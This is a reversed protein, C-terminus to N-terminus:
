FRQTLKIWFYRGITDFTEVDTNANLVNNQFMLPPQKDFMNDVGILVSSGWDEKAYGLALNHYITSGYAIPTVAAGGDADPLTFGHIYRANWLASFGNYDWAVAGQARWRAFNGFQRNFKGANDIKLPSSADPQREDKAIYTSDLSFRFRGFPTSDLRYKAGVDVGSTDVKGLNATIQQIVFVEGDSANRVILNCFQPDGSSLCQAAITDPELTEITDDLKYRWFDVAASFGKFWSPDYVFGYTLVRGEEPDLRPNGQLLGTIQSNPPNFSGNRPVNQCVLALNPQADVDAQTLGVCPDDFQASNNVKPSFLDGITPARFVEAFSARILLDDIPRYEMRITGNHAAGFNSYDSYRAGINFALSQAGPKDALVPLYVETYYEKVNYEGNTANTCTEQQLLCSLFDPALARAVFDVDSELELERYEFGAAMQVAGAPLNFLTGSTNVTAIKQTFFSQTGYGAAVPALAEAQGPATLNFINIPTCGEIVTAGTLPDAPDPGATGCVPSQIGPAPDTDFSPGLADVLPPAFLYGKADFYTAERGFSGGADWKWTTDGITGTLGLNVQDVMNKVESERNGLAELRFVANPFGTGLGGFDIGFPNFVSDASIVVNDNRSDFPLPAITFGSRTQNHVVEAYAEISDTIKYTGIAFVSAREQPTLVLNFPQYNYFDSNNGSTIFCRFDNQSGGAAGNQRIVSINVDALTAGDAVLAAEQEPTLCDYQRAGPSLGADTTTEFQSGPLTIRGNPARSSGGQFVFGSYLYTAFEAFKRAGASIGKQENYNMGLMISGKADSAGWSLNLGRREGDDEGSVGYDASLEMGNFQKRTIINVVGAIADSGYIASAGEKLVEVREIFNVPLSNVDQTVLRRGNVLLLTRDEGLGRLSVESAGDGGGNNVRPNTANGAISPLEQILEGVTQVGSTEIAMRDITFVPSAGEADVRRIRSGTVEITDLQAAGDEKKEDQATAPGSVFTSAAVAAIASLRFIGASREHTSTMEM